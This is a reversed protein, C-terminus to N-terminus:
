ATWPRFSRPLCPARAPLHVSAVALRHANARDEARRAVVADVVVARDVGRVARARREGAEGLPGPATEAELGGKRDRREREVAAGARTKPGTDHV